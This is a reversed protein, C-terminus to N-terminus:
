LNLEYGSFAGLQGLPMITPGRAILECSTTLMYLYVTNWAGEGIAKSNHPQSLQLLFFNRFYQVLSGLSLLRQVRLLRSYVVGALRRIKSFSSHYPRFNDQYLITHDVCFQTRITKLFICFLHRHFPLPCPVM